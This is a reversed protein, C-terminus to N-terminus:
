GWGRRKLYGMTVIRSCWSFSLSSGGQQVSVKEKRHESLFASKVKGELELLARAGGGVRAVIRLTRPIWLAYDEVSM